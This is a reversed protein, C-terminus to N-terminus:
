TEIIEQLSLNAGDCLLAFYWFVDGLEDRLHERDLTKGHFVAKKVINAVEGAEGALGLAGLTVQTQWEASDFHSPSLRYVRLVEEMYSSPISPADQLAEEIM